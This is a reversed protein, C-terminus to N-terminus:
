NKDDKPSVGFFSKYARYFSSYDSHGCEAAVSMISQGSKIRLRAGYMRKTTIYKYVSSGTNKKFLRNIQSRSIFFKDSIDEVTIQSYINENIYDIIRACVSNSRSLNGMSLAGEHTETLILLIRAVAAAFSTNEDISEIADHVLSSSLMDKKFINGTGAPRSNLSQMIKGDTDFEKLFQPSVMIVVREYPTNGHWRMTHSEYPRIVAIDGPKLIYETGEVLCKCNGSIFYYLEIRDHTHMPCKDPPSTDVKRTIHISNDSFTIEFKKMFLNYM